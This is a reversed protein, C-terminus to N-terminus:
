QYESVIESFITKPMFSYQNINECCHRQANEDVDENATENAEAFSSKIGM